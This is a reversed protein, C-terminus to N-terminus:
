SVTGHEIHSAATSLLFIRNLPLTWGASHSSRDHPSHGRRSHDCRVGDRQDTPRRGTEVHRFHCDDDLDLAISM